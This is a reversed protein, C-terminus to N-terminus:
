GLRVFKRKGIQIVMGSMPTIVAEPNTITQQDIKVGKQEILRRAESKSDILGTKVLVDVIPMPILEITITPIDPPIEGKQFTNIFNTEAQDAAGADHYMAVIAKALQIKIDRPNTNSTKLNDALQNIKNLPVTTYVTFYDIILQDPLSMIKGFMDNPTDTIAIYNGLSKSQKEKGDLGPTIKTTIIAQPKTGFKEQFLRGMMENFLQDNGVITLDSKLMLSDYGQLIPYMIEHMHIEQGDKIRKQFMDREILQAHTLMAALSLFEDVKMKGWWESNRRIEFVPQDTDLIKGVQKIFEESNKKIETESIIKRTQSKGTPDGIKTTFDGILFIVKHGAEQLRRMMWLNVAHGIHLFPATVDVGYKIRLPQGSELKKRLDDESIIKEVTRSLFEDIEESTLKKITM